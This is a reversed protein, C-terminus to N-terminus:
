PATVRNFDSFCNSLITKHCYQDSPDTCKTDSWSVTVIVKTIGSGCGTSTDFEVQRYYTKVNPTPCSTLLETEGENLCYMGSKTSFEAYDADRLNRVTDMAEQAYQSALNQNKSQNTAGLSSLVSVAIATLIISAAGLAIVLELLSQGKSRIRM